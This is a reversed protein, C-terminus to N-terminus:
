APIKRNRRHVRDSPSVRWGAEALAGTGRLHNGLSVIPQYHLVFEEDALARRLDSELTLRKMAASHLDQDYLETRAKGLAKARYM